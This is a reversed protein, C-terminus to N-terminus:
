FHRQTHGGRQQQFISQRIRHVGGEEEPAGPGGERGRGAPLRVADEVGADQVWPICEKLAGRVRFFCIKKLPRVM